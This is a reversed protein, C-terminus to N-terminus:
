ILTEPPGFVLARPGFVSGRPKRGPSPARFVRTQALARLTRAHHLYAYLQPFIRTHFVRSVSNVPWGLSLCICHRRRRRRRAAAAAAAHQLL